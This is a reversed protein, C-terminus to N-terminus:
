SLNAPHSFHTLSESTPNSTHSSITINKMAFKSSEVELLKYFIQFIMNTYTPPEMACLGFFSFDFSLVELGTGSFSSETTSIAFILRCIEIVVPISASKPTQIVPSNAGATFSYTSCLNLAGGAIAIVPVKAERGDSVGVTVSSNEGVGPMASVNVGLIVSVNVGEGGLAGMVGTSMIFTIKIGVQYVPFAGNNTLKLTLPDKIVKAFPFVDEHMLV